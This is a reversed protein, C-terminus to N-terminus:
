MFFISLDLMEKFLRQNKHEQDKIERYLSIGHPVVSFGMLQASKAPFDAAKPPKGLLPM